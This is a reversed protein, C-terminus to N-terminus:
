SDNDYMMLEGVVVTIISFRKKGASCRQVPHTAPTMNCPLILRAILLHSYLKLKIYMLMQKSESKQSYHTASKATALQHNSYLRGYKAHVHWTHM